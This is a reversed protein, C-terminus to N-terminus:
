ALMFGHIDSLETPTNSDTEHALLFVFGLSYIYLLFESFSSGLCGWAVEVNLLLRVGQPFTSFSDSASTTSLSWSGMPSAPLKNKWREKLGLSATLHLRPGVCSLSPGSTPRGVLHLPTQNLSFVQCGSKGNLHKLFCVYELVAKVQESLIMCSLFVGNFLLIKNWKQAWSILPIKNGNEWPRRWNLHWCVNLNITWHALCSPLSLADVARGFIPGSHLEQGIILVPLDQCWLRQLINSWM